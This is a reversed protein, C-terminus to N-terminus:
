VGAWVEALGRGGGDFEARPLFETRLARVSAAERLRLLKWGARAGSASGGALQFCLLRPEGRRDRGYAHPEVVRSWGGYRLEILRHDRVARAIAEDM